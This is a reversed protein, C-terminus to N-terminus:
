AVRYIFNIPSQVRTKRKDRRGPRIPVTRASIEVLIKEFILDTSGQLYRKHIIICSMKFNIEYAYKCKKQPVTAQANTQSVTNFMIMHAYIEMEIFDDKKSHFQVSGLDYKLKRFSSEIGWRLNYLEKMKDLPYDRRDLNTLLVEWTEKNSDCEDNIKIKCARFNVRCFTGFDWRADQTNKSIHKKYHHRNHMVVHINEQDKHTTYYYNSDTVRCSIDVDCEKDPLDEVEKIASKGTKSRIVYYCDSFRNCNEIMNFSTYGRDMLVIYPDTHLNKLMDIAASREDMKAKPQFICDQYTNNALDYLANVHLQCIPHSYRNTIINKSKSDFLQNFDSGDIAFLRYKGDYLKTHVLNKNFEDLIHKFCFPTLKSKQQVFASVTMMKDRDDFYDFLEKGLSNGQMNLITKITIFADLKRKRTFAHPDSIFDHINDATNNIISDLRKLINIYPSKM